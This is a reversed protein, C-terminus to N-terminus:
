AGRTIEGNRARKERNRRAAEANQYGCQECSSVETEPDWQMDRSGCVPCFPLCGLAGIPDAHGEWRNPQVPAFEVLDEHVCPGEICYDAGGGIDCHGLGDFNHRCIKM